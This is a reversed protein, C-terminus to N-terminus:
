SVALTYNGGAASLTCTITTASNIAIQNQQSGVSYIFMNNVVDFSFSTIGSIVKSTLTNGPGIVGTITATCTAGASM